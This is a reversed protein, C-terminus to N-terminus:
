DMKLAAEEFSEFQIQSNLKFRIDLVISIAKVLM